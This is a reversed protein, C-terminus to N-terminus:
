WDTTGEKATKRRWTRSTRVMSSESLTSKKVDKSERFDNIYETRNMSLKSVYAAADRGLDLHIVYCPIIQAEDFVVYELLDNAAHCHAGPCPVNQHQWNDDRTMFRCVRTLTACDILELSAFENFKTSERRFRTYM